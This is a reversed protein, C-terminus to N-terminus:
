KICPAQLLRVWFGTLRPLIKERHEVLVGLIEDLTGLASQLGLLKQFSQLDLVNRLVRRAEDKCAARVWVTELGKQRAVLLVLSHGGALIYIDLLMWFSSSISLNFLGYTCKVNLSTSWNATGSADGWLKDRKDRKCVFKMNTNKLRPTRWIWYPTIYGTLIINKRKHIWM